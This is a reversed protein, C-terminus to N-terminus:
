LASIYIALRHLKFDKGYYSPLFGALLFVDLLPALPNVCMIRLFCVRLFIYTIHFGCHYNAFPSYGNITEMQHGLIQSFTLITNYYKYLTPASPWYMEAEKLSVTFSDRAPLIADAMIERMLGIPLPLLRTTDLSM